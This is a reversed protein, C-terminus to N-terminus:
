FALIANDLSETKLLYRYRIYIHQIYYGQMSMSVMRLGVYGQMALCLGVYGYVARCLGVYGQIAMCLWVYGQMAMCLGVYCYIARCLWLCGYMSMCLWVYGQMDTCLGVYGQMSIYLRVYGQLVTCMHLLEVDSVYHFAKKSHLCLMCLDKRQSYSRLPFVHEATRNNPLFLFALKLNLQSTYKFVHCNQPTTPKLYRVCCKEQTPPSLCVESIQRTIVGARNTSPLSLVVVNLRVTGLTPFSYNKM